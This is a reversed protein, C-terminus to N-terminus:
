PQAILETPTLLDRRFAGNKLHYYPVPLEDPGPLGHRLRDTLDEIVVRTIGPLDLGRADEMTLWHLGSLEGDNSDIRHSIASADVCFFRADFRRARGPPTIARAFFTLDGLRPVFGAAFFAQWGPVKTEVPKTVRAGILIGAEEFTERIAALAIARTRALSAGGKMDHLLKAAEAERLEDASEVAKDDADVRGGPFVYKGPMFAVDARRQGMLVRVVGGSRDVIILTAADRPREAKDARDREARAQEESKDHDAM